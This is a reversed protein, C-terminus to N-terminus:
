QFQETTFSMSNHFKNWCMNYHKAIFETDSRDQSMAKNWGYTKIRGEKFLICLKMTKSDTDNEQIVM